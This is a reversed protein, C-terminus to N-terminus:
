ILLERKWCYSIQNGNAKIYDMHTVWRGEGSGGWGYPSARRVRIQSRGGVGPQRQSHVGETCVGARPSTIGAHLSMRRGWSMSWCEGGPQVETPGDEGEWAGISRATSGRQPSATRVGRGPIFEPGSVSPGREGGWGTCVGADGGQARVGGHNRM